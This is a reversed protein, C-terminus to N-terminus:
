VGPKEAEHEIDKPIASRGVMVGTSTIGPFGKRGVPAPSQGTGDGIARRWGAALPDIGPHLPGRSEQGHATLMVRTARPSVGRDGVSVTETVRGVGSDTVLDFGTDKSALVRDVDGFAAVQGSVDDLRVLTQEEIQAVPEARSEM